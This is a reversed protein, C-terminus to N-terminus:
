TRAGPEDAKAVYSKGGGVYKNAQVVDDVQFAVYKVM